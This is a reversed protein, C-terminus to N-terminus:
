SDFFSTNDDTDDYGYFTDHVMFLSGHDEAIFRMYEYEKHFRDIMKRRWVYRDKSFLEIDNTLRTDLETFCTLCLKSASADPKNAKLPKFSHENCVPKQCKKCTLVMTTECPRLVFLGITEECNKRQEM